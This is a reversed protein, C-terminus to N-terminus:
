SAPVITGHRTLEDLFASVDRLADDRTLEPFQERLAAMLDEPSAPTALREWLRSGTPNLVLATRSTRHYLVIRDGVASAEVAECRAYSPEM